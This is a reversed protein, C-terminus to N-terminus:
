QRNMRQMYKDYLKYYRDCDAPDHTQSCKAKAANMEANLAQIDQDGAPGHSGQPGTPGTGSGNDIPPAANDEASPQIDAPNGGWDAWGGVKEQLEDRLVLSSATMEWLGQGENVVLPQIEGNKDAALKLIGHYYTQTQGSIPSDPVVGGEFIAVVIWGVDKNYVRQVESIKMRVKSGSDSVVQHAAFDRAFDKFTREAQWPAVGRYTQALLSGGTALALGLVVLAALRRYPSMRLIAIM